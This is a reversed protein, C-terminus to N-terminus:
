ANVAFLTRGVTKTGDSYEILGAYRTGATLGAWTVTLTLPTGSVAPQSTPGANLNGAPAPAVTFTHLKVDQETAGSALDFQVLYVDHDGPEPLDIIEQASSGTSQAVRETTGAPLDGGVAAAVGDVTQVPAGGAAV